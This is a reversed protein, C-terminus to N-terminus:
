RAGARELLASAASAPDLRREVVQDLLADMGPDDRLDADLRRRVRSTAIALVENRLNRRRRAALEDGELIHTRHEALATV